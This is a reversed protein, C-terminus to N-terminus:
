YEKKGKGFNKQRYKFIDKIEEESHNVYKAVKRILDSNITPGLKNLVYLIGEEIKNGMESSRMRM